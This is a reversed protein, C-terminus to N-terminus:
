LVSIYIKLCTFNSSDKQQNLRLIKFKEQMHQLRYNRKRKCNYPIKTNHSVCFYLCLFDTHLRM